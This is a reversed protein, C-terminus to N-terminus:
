NNEIKTTSSMRIESVTGFLVAFRDEGDNDFDVVEGARISGYLNLTYRNDDDNWRDWPTFSNAEQSLYVQPM